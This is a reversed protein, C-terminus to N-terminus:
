KDEMKYFIIFFGHKQCFDPYKKLFRNNKHMINLMGHPSMEDWHLQSHINEHDSPILNIGIMTNSIHNKQNKEIRLTTM